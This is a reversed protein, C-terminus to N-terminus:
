GNYAVGLRTEHVNDFWTHEDNIIFFKGVFGTKPEAILVNKGTICKVDGNIIISGTKDVGHLEPLILVDDETYRETEVEQFLGFKQLDAQNMKTTLVSGEDDVIVIRNIMQKINESYEAERINTDSSLNAVTLIDSPLDLYVNSGLARINYVPLDLDKRISKALVEYYTLDGTAIIQQNTHGFTILSTLGFVNCVQACIQTATGVYRGSATSRLLNNLLDYCDVEYKKTTTNYNTIYAMGQFLLNNNDDYMTIKDGVRTSEEMPLYVFSLTRAAQQYDGGWRIYTKTLIEKGNRYIRM